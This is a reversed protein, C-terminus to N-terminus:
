RRLVLFVILIVLIITVSGGGIWVGSMALAPTLALILNM